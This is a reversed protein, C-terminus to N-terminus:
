YINMGYNDIAKQIYSEITDERLMKEFDEDVNKKYTTQVENYGLVRTRFNWLYIISEMNRGHSKEQGQLIEKTFLPFSRKINGNFMEIAQRITTLWKSWTQLLKYHQKPVRKKVLPMYVPAFDSQWVSDANGKFGSDVVVATKSANYDPDRHRAFVDRAARSDHCSGLRCLEYDVVEGFYNIMIIHNLGDGKNASHRNMNETANKSTHVPTFTGDLALAIAYPVEINMPPPGHQKIIAEFMTEAEETTPYRPKAVDFELISTHFAKLALTLTKSILPETAGFEIALPLQMATQFYRLALATLDIYDFKPPQGRKIGHTATDRSVPLNDRMKEAISLFMTRSIRLYKLMSEETGHHRIHQWFSVKMDNSRFHYRPTVYRKLKFLSEIDDAVSELYIMCEEKYPGEEVEMAVQEITAILEESCLILYAPSVQLYESKDTVLATEVEM